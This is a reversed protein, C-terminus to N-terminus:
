ENWRRRGNMLIGNMYLSAEGLLRWESTNDTLSICNSCNTVKQVDHIFRLDERAM